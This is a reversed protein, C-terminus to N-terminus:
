SSIYDHLIEINATFDEYNSNYIYAFMYDSMIGAAPGHKMIGGTDFVSRLERGSRFAYGKGILVTICTALLLVMSWKGVKVHNQKEWVMVIVLVSMIIGLVGHPLANYM